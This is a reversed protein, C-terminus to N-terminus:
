GEDGEDTAGADLSRAEIVPGAASRRAKDLLDVIRGRVRQSTMQVPPADTEPPPIVITEQDQFVGDIRCLLTQVAIAGRLDREIGDAGKSICRRFLAELVRKRHLRRSHAPMAHEDDNWEAEVEALDKRAMRTSVGFEEAILRAIRSRGVDQALMTEIRARRALRDRTTAKRGPTAM